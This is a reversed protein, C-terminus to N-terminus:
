TEESPGWGCGDGLENTGNLSRLQNTGNAVQWSSFDLDHIVMFLRSVQSLSVWLFLFGWPGHYRFNSAVMPHGQTGQAGLRHFVVFKRATGYCRGTPSSM